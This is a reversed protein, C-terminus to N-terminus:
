YTEPLTTPLPTVWEAGEVFEWMACIYGKTAGDVFRWSHLKWHGAASPKEPPQLEFNGEGDIQLANVLTAKYRL